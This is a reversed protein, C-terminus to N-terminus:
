AEPARLLNSFVSQQARRLRRSFAPRSIDVMEALETASHERPTAFYGHELALDLAERQKDTVGVLARSNGTDTDPNHVMRQVSIDIGADFCATQFASLESQGFARLRFYWEEGHNTTAEEVLVDHDHLADLFGDVEDSWEIRYLAADVRGDLNNLSAVAPHERAHQEFQETDGDRKKWFYPIFEGDVPVFQTLELRTETAALAQGFTIEAAEVSFSAIVTM